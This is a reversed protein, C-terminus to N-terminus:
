HKFFLNLENPQRIGLQNTSNYNIFQSKNQHSDEVSGEGIYDDLTTEEATYM